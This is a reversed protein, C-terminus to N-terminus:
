PDPSNFVIVDGRKPKKPGTIYVPDSFWDIFPVKFGYAFKNVVIYDGILLTPIMSGTPIKYPEFLVSRFALVAIM